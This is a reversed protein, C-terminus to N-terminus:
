GVPREGEPSREAAKLDRLLREFAQQYVDHTKWRRFDGIHRTRHILAPWGTKLTMVTDDIRVPFLVTTGQERERELATEVEQEVWQSAVSAKSLVLLLKDYVRITEDVRPRLRDGIKMDEPAFWCRVGKNQLDAYLRDAFARDTTAHSIFCSYFQVPENLLSPLYDILADPLGCGRLFVLPLPGSKAITRHDLTSPGHHRCTELGRVDTLNTNGFVTESLRATTLNAKTLNADLVIGEAPTLTVRRYIRRLISRSYRRSFIM